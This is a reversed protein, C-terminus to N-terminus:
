GRWGRWEGGTQIPARSTSPSTISITKPIQIKDSREFVPSWHLSTTCTVLGRPSCKLRFTVPSSPCWPTLLIFRSSHLPNRELVTTEMWIPTPATPATTWFGQRCLIVGHNRSSALGGLVCNTMNIRQTGFEILKEARHSHRPCIRTSVWRVRKFQQTRTYICIMSIWCISLTLDIDKKPLKWGSYWGTGAAFSNGGGPWRQVMNKRAVSSTVDQNTSVGQVWLIYWIKYGDYVNMYWLIPHMSTM